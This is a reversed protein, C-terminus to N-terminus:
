FGAADVKGGACSGNANPAAHMLEGLGTDAEIEGKLNIWLEGIMGSSCKIKVKNSAGAGFAEDFKARIENATISNGINSSFLERVASDNLQDILSLSEVFYEEAHESYCTGHKIWEHRQLFSAVGPMRQSLATMTGDSLGLAPLQSWAKNKDLNKDQNSVNCYINNPPQPWLGHLSFHTADFRDATQSECENKSQHTQCFAPQWSIALLYEKASSQGGNNGNDGGNNGEDGGGSDATDQKTKCDSLVKGCSTKVWRETQTIGKIKIQYHTAQSKNQGLLEYAMDPTLTIDGPNTNKKISVLAPCNQDAIFYGDLSIYAYANLPLTFALFLTTYFVNRINM